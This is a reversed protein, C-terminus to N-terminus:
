TASRKPVQVIRTMVKKNGRSDTAVVELTARGGAVASGLPLKLSQRGAALGGVRKRAITRSGRLLRLNLSTTEKTAVSAVLTRLGLKSTAWSPTALAASVTTDPGGLGGAPPTGGPGGGSGDSNGGGQNSKSLGFTFAGVYGDSGDATLPVLVSAGDTGYINDNTNRTDRTGRANYPAKTNVQDTATDDFFLQTLFDYTATGSADFLRVRAHIHVTRGSYWGPFVTRFAIKGAADSVQYGRLFKKGLTGEGSEDSYKGNADAHWIDVQAGVFPSCANDEDVLALNLVLPVGSSAVGTGPDTTIDSRNLKEEVFYPGITKVPTLSACSAALAENTGLLMSVPTRTGALLLGAGTLGATGLLGRRTVTRITEM